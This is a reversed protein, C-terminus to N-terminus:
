TGYRGEYSHQLDLNAHIRLLKAWHQQYRIRVYLDHIWILNEM